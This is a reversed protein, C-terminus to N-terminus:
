FLMCRVNQGPATFDPNQSCNIEEDSDTDPVDRVHGDRNEDTRLRKSGSSEAESRGRKRDMIKDDKPPSYTLLWM